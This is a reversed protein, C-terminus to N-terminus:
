EPVTPPTIGGELRKRLEDDFISGEDAEAERREHLADLRELLPDKTEEVTAGDPTTLLDDRRTTLDTEVDDTITAKSEELLVSLPVLEPYPLKSDFQEESLELEPFKKCGSVSACLLALAFIASTSLHTM